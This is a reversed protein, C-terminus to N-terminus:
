GAQRSGPSVQDGQPPIVVEQVVQEAMDIHGGNFVSLDEIIPEEEHISGNALHGDLAQAGVMDEHLSWQTAQLAEDEASIKNGLALEEETAKMFPLNSRRAINLQWFLDQAMKFRVFAEIVNDLEARFDKLLVKIRHPAYGAGPGDEPFLPTGRDFDVDSDQDEDDLADQSHPLGQEWLDHQISFNRLEDQLDLFSQENVDLVEVSDTLFQRALRRARAKFGKRIQNM